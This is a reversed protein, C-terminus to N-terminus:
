QNLEFMGPNCFTHQRLAQALVSNGQGAVLYITRAFVMFQSASVPDAVIRRCWRRLRQAGAIIVSSM